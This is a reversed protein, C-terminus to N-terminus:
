TDDFLKMVEVAKVKASELERETLPPLRRFRILSTRYVGSPRILYGISWYFVSGPELFRMDTPDIEEFSIEAELDPGQGVIPVLRAIFAGNKVELVYGEWKQRVDFRETHQSPYYLIPPSVDLTLEMQNSGDILYHAQSQESYSSNPKSLYNTDPLKSWRDYIPADIDSGNGANSDAESSSVDFRNITM